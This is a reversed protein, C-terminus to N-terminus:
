KNDQNMRFQDFPVPRPSPVQFFHKINTAMQPSM